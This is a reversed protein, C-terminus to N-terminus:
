QWGSETINQASDTALLGMSFVFGAQEQQRAWAFESTFDYDTESKGQPKEWPRYYHRFNFKDWRDLWMPVEVSAKSQSLATTPLAKLLTAMGSADKAALLHVITGTRLAAVWGQNSVELASVDVAGARLTRRRVEPSLSTDSLYKAQLLRAKAESETQIRLASGKPFTRQVGSVKGYGRLDVAPLVRSSQAQALAAAMLVAFMAQARLRSTAPLHVPNM